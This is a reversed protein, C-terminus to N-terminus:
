PVAVTEGRETERIRAADRRHDDFAFREQWYRHALRTRLLDLDKAGIKKNSLRPASKIVQIRAASKWRLDQWSFYLLGAYDPIDRLPVLMEPVCYFFRTPPNRREALRQHKQGKRADARYDSLSTKCECEISYGSRTVVFLDCEYWWCPTYNPAIAMASSQHRWFLARQMDREGLGDIRESNESAEESTFTRKLHLLDRDLIM